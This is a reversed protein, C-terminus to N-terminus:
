PRPPLTSHPYADPTVILLSPLLFHHTPYVFAGIQNTIVIQASSVEDKPMPLEKPLNAMWYSDSASPEPGPTKHLVHLTLGSIGISEQGYVGNPYDKWRRPKASVANDLM